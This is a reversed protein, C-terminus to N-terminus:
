VLQLMMYYTDAEDECISPSVLHVLELYRPFFEMKQILDLIKLSGMNIKSDTVCFGRPGHLSNTVMYQVTINNTPCQRSSSSM